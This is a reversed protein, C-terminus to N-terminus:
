IEGLESLANFIHRVTALGGSVRVNGVFVYLENRERAHRERIKGSSSSFPSHHQGIPGALDSYFVSCMAASTGTHPTQRIQTGNM